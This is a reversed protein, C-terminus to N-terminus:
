LKERSRSALANVLASNFGRAASARAPADYAYTMKALGEIKKRKAAALGPALILVANESAALADLHDDLVNQLLEVEVSDEDGGQAKAAQYPDDLLVLLRRAFLGGSQAADALLADTLEERAVRAYALNPEKARAKAVWAFATARAKETDTGTFLYIM